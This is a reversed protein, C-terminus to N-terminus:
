VEDRLEKEVRLETDEESAAKDYRRECCLILFPLALPFSCVSRTVASPLLEHLDADHDLAEDVADEARADSLMVEAREGRDGVKSM